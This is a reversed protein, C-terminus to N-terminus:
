RLTRLYRREHCLNEQLRNEVLQGLIRAHDDVVRVIKEAQASVFAIGSVQQIGQPLNELAVWGSRQLWPKDRVVLRTFDEYKETVTYRRFVVPRQM